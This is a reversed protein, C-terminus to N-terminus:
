FVLFLVAGWILPLIITIHEWCKNLSLDISPDQCLVHPYMVRVDFCHPNLFLKTGVIFSSLLIMLKFTYYSSEHGAIIPDGGMEEAALEWNNWTVKVLPLVDYSPISHREVLNSAKRWVPFSCYDPPMVCESGFKSALLYSCELNFTGGSSWSHSLAGILCCLSFWAPKFLCM